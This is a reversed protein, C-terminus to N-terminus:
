SVGTLGEGQIKANRQAEYVAAATKDGIAAAQNIKKQYDTNRDYTIALKHAGTRNPLWKSIKKWRQLDSKTRPTSGSWRRSYIISMTSSSDCGM